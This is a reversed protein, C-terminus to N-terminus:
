RRQTSSRHCMRLLTSSFEGRSKPVLAQEEPKLAKEYADGATAGTSKTGPSPLGKTGPPLNMLDLFSQVHRDDARWIFRPSPHTRCEIPWKLIRAQQEGSIGPGIRGLIKIEVWTSLLADLQDLSESVGEASFDDGHITTTDDSETAYYTCPCVAM